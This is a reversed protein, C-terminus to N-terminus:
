REKFVVRYEKVAKNTWQVYGAKHKCRFCIAIVEYDIDNEILDRDCDANWYADLINQGFYSTEWIKKKKTKQKKM